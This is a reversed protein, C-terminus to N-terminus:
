IYFRHDSAVASCVCGVYGGDDVGGGSICVGSVSSVGGVSVGGGGGDSSIGGVSVGGGGGGGTM